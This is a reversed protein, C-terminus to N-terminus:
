SIIHFFIKSRPLGWIVVHCMGMAHQIGCAVFVFDPYTISGAKGCCCHICSREENNRKYMTLDVTQRTLEPFM